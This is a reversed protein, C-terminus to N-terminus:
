RHAPAKVFRRTSLSCGSSALACGAATLAPAVGLGLDATMLWALLSAGLTAGLLRTTSILAGASASRTIPTARMILHSNPALFLGAGVGGLALPVVLWLPDPGNTTIWATLGFATATLAAGLGGLLGPPSRETLFGALTAVAMTAIPWTAMLLGIQAPGLDWVHHLRFPLSLIFAMNAGNFLLSALTPLACAPQALLDMPLIPRDSCRERRMLLMGLLAALAVLAATPILATHRLAELGALLAAFMAACLVGAVVDYVGRRPRPAPLSRGMLLSLVAFPVAVAFVARWNGAALILGGITPAITSASAIIISNLGLGRGLKEVPYISRLLAVNVALVSATGLAQAARAALLTPLNTAAVCALSAVLFLVQGAQYLRRHGILDGVASLPLVSMLLVAQYITVVSIAASPTVGLARAISPLAVTAISNDIVLLATGFSLAIIARGRRPQSLGTFAADRM